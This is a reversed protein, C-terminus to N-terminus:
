ALNWIDSGVDCPHCCMAEFSTFGPTGIHPHTGEHVLHASSCGMLSGIEEDSITIREPILGMYVINHQHLFALATATDRLIKCLAENRYKIDTTKVYQALTTSATYKTILAPVEVTAIPAADSSSINQIPVTVAPCYFSREWSIQPPLTVKKGALSDLMEAHNMFSEIAWGNQRGDNKTGSYTADAKSGSIINPWTITYKTHTDPDEFVHSIIRQTTEIRIKSLDPLLGRYALLNQFKQPAAAAAAPADNNATPATASIEVTEARSMHNLKM